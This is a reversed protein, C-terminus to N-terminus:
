DIPVTAVSFRSPFASNVGRWAKVFGPLVVNFRFLAPARYLLCEPGIENAMPVVFLM